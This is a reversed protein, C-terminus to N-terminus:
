KIRATHPGFLREVSQILQPNPRVNFQEGLSFTQKTQEYYLIVNLPGAHEKLLERLQQMLDQSEHEADIRIFLRQSTRLKMNRDNVTPQTRPMRQAQSSAPGRQVAHAVQNIRLKQEWEPDDLACLADALIKVNDEDQFQLKGAILLLHGKQVLMGYKSWAEPFIVVEVKDVQNELEIFSMAKGKKTVINRQSAVMGAVLVDSHEPKEHLLHLSEAQIRELTDWYGDLPHGSIYMGLLERELSLQDQQSLSPIDPYEITWNMEETFGFLHLQLDDREKKLKLATEVTEELVALLQARHGNLSDLAGCQILSEIVRKNCVRLDIRRCLDLLDTYPGQEREKLINDIAQTGVNKIAALGFRISGRSDTADSVTDQHPVPTFWVGSENIDPPLVAIHMRRCEDVYEATKRQNGTVSSLMAAMFALPYNAKLYATQFALVGYATAHARPFGYNAFRVIMDYVANAETENYGQQLSGTVFHEREKDLIEKKKKSVASRLLDAEGLSFGAMLAAIQMIQEQYVIIGYTDRLVPELSPHPYQVQLKGHKAATYQPIFDMPGPRYLAIVSIIDEFTSPKLEKLVRRFGASELQFIGSTDGRSLLEYTMRDDDPLSRLDIRTGYLERIWLLTKEIISLNRLGLFDMKLLGVTELHEMSYQTLPTSTGAQLPVYDTLPDRSIVVGSAHTSSHRPMGEVKMAMELLRQTRPDDKAMAMLEPSAAMAERLTIGLHRPIVRVVRDVENYPYNLVRGVDRVAARAAMTGFTIIQAVRDRGYKRVVYQIVEDRREDSFDVDIDPMSIREPNLFREFFLRYRIPDVDTIKLVYAVLSGVSSGRGPGVVIGQSRAYRIFDWVILFYDAYGMRSIVSLEYQLRQQLETRYREESWQPLSQYRNVLGEECLAALYQETTQGPPLPQFQPLIPEGFTLELQCREAISSTNALAEPVHSFREAMEEASKMYLQDTTFRMRDESDISKGTGICILVDQMSHDDAHLYHVDNTVVLPIGTQESLEIMQRMVKKQEVMGHDQIELYFDDGFIRHYREAAQKAQSLRDALLHQSVESGMCASLCILGESYTELLQLDIRPRYHFGELHAISSLKLLNRYGTKNKALLVLHYIPQDQRSGKSHISGETIYVECGIIPKVGYKQCARYFPIAGYMVGHDTLALASMGLESARRALDDIRAAGDLLSYESHVHLHVFRSM